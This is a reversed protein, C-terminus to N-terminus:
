FFTLFWKKQKQFQIYLLYPRDRTSSKHKLGSVHMGPIWPLSPIHQTNEGSKSYPAQHVSVSPFSEPGPLGEEPLLICVSTISGKVSASKGWGFFNILVYWVNWLTQLHFYSCPVTNSSFKKRSHTSKIRIVIPVLRIQLLMREKIHCAEGELGGLREGTTGRWTGGRGAQLRRRSAGARVDDEGQSVGLQLSMKSSNVRIVLNDQAQRWPICPNWSSGSPSQRSCITRACGICALDSNANGLRRATEVLSAKPIVPIWRPGANYTSSCLM